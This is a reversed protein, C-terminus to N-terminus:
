LVRQKEANASVCERNTAYVNPGSIHRHAQRVKAGMVCLTCNRLKPLLCSLGDSLVWQSAQIVYHLVAAGDASIMVDM